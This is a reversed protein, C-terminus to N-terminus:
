PLLNAKGPDTRIVCIIGAKQTILVPAIVGIGDQNYWINM